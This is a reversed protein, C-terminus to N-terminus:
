ESPQLSQSAYAVPHLKGDSQEPEVIAGLGQGSADTAVHFPKTFNPYALVPDNILRSKLHEFAEQCESIWDFQVNKKVLAHLPHAVKAFGEIFRRYYSALRLFSRLDVVTTPIPFGRVAETKEPDPSLGCDSIVCGLYPVERRGFRCKRPKLKLGVERLREFVQKM